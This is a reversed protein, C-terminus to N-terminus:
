WQLRNAIMLYEVFVPTNFHDFKIICKDISGVGNQQFVSKHSNM